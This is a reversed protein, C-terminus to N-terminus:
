SAQPKLRPHAGNQAKATKIQELCYLLKKLTQNLVIVFSSIPSKLAIVVQTRLVEKSPLRSLREIDKKEIIRDRLFGGELKISQHGRSFECLIRCATVPEDKVFVLGCPGEILKVIDELGSSKLARRAVSNKVVFLNSKTKNLSQRLTVLDPSDVGSYNIVFVSESEKIYNKIRNESIEKFLFGIKKM